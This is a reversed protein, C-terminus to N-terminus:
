LAGKHMVSMVSAANVLDVEVTPSVMYDFGDKLGIRVVERGVIPEAEGKAVDNAQTFVIGDDLRSVCVFVRKRRQDMTSTGLYSKGVEFRYM